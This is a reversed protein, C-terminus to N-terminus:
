YLKEMKKILRNEFNIPLVMQCVALETISKELDEPHIFSTIPSSLIEEKTYGLTNIFAPNVNKIDM